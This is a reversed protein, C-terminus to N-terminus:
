SGSMKAEVSTPSLQWSYLSNKTSNQVSIYRHFCRQIQTNFIIILQKITCHIFELWLDFCFHAYIFLQIFSPSRIIPFIFDHSFKPFFFPNQLLRKFGTPLCLAVTMATPAHIITTTTTTSTTTFLPASVHCRM